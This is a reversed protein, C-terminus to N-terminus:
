IQTILQVHIWVVRLRKYIFIVIRSIVCNTDEIQKNLTKRKVMSIYPIWINKNAHLKREVHLKKMCEFLVITALDHSFQDEPANALTALAM